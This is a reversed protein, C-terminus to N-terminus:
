VLFAKIPKYSRRHILSVGLEELKERHLKTGYGVHKEFQYGPYFRAIREMYADRAVKAYISAASVIPILNDAKIQCRARVFEDPCYNVNGDLIIEDDLAANLAILARSVGIRMAKALGHQDIEDSQVWGEGLTCSEKIIEFLAERKSKILLKSDKLGAPLDSVAKAAVVLLPGAWSGRGVEDIGVVGNVGAFRNQSMAVSAMQRKDVKLKTGQPVREVYRM